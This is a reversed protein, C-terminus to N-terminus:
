KKERHYRRLRHVEGVEIGELLMALLGRDLQGQKPLTFQGQELRKYWIEYGDRDWSLIKLMSRRRNCFIYLDGSLPDQGLENEVMAALRDFSRRMDTPARYLYM